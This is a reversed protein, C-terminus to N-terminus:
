RRIFRAVVTGASGVGLLGDLEWAAQWQQDAAMEQERRSGKWLFAYGGTRVFRAAQELTAALPLTARSTFGDFRESPAPDPLNEIRDRVVILNPLKLEQVAKQLFLTKNRRSEVLTWSSGVGLMALPIAPLGGGSGLDLWRQAGSEKLWHAPDVSESIHREVIRMVDNRSILNSVGGNWELLLAAYARLRALATKTDSSVRLIGPLLANWDQRNLVTSVDRVRIERRSHEAPFQERKEFRGRAGGRSPGRSSV